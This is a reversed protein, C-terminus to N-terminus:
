LYTCLFLPGGPARNRGSRNSPLHQRNWNVKWRIRASARWGWGGFRGAHPIPASRGSTTPYGADAKTLGNPPSPPHPTAASWDASQCSLGVPLRPVGLHEIEQLAMVLQRLMQDFSQGGQCIRTASERLIQIKLRGYNWGM